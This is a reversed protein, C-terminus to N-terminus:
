ASESANRLSTWFNTSGVSYPPFAGEYASYAEPYVSTEGYFAAAQEDVIGTEIYSQTVTDFAYRTGSAVLSAANHTYTSSNAQMYTLSGGASTGSYSTVLGLAPQLGYFFGALQPGRDTTIQTDYRSNDAPVSSDGFTFAATAGRQASFDSAKQTLLRYSNGSRWVVTAGNQDRGIVQGALTSTTLVGDFGLRVVTNGLYFSPPASIRNAAYLGQTDLGITNNGLGYNGVVYSGDVPAVTPSASLSGVVLFNGTGTAATYCPGRGPLYGIFAMNDISVGLAAAATDLAVRHFQVQGGAPDIFTLIHYDTLGNGDQHRIAGVFIATM